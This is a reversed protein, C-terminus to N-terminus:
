SVLPVHGLELERCIAIYLPFSPFTSGEEINGLTKQAIGLRRALESQRMPEAVLRGRWRVLTALRKERLNKGFLKRAEDMAITDGRSRWELRYKKEATM